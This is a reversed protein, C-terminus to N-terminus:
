LPIRYHHILTEDERIVVSARRNPCSTPRANSDNGPFICINVPERFYIHPDRNVLLFAPNSTIGVISYNIVFRVFLPNEFDEITEGAGPSGQGFVVRSCKQEQRIDIIFRYKKGFGSICDSGQFNKRAETV